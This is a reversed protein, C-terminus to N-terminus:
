QVASLTTTARTASQLVEAAEDPDLAFIEGLTAADPLDGYLALRGSAYTLAQDFNSPPAAVPAISAVASAINASAPRFTAYGDLKRPTGWRDAALERFAAPSLNGPSGAEVYRAALESRRLKGRRDFRVLFAIAAEMDGSDISPAPLHPRIRALLRSRAAISIGLETATARIAYREALTEADLVPDLDTADLLDLVMGGGFMHASRVDYAIQDESADPDLAAEYNAAFSREVVPVFAALKAVRDVLLRDATRSLVDVALFAVQDTERYAGDVAYGVGRQYTVGSRALDVAIAEAPLTDSPWAGSGARPTKRASQPPFPSPVTLPSDTYDRLSSSM